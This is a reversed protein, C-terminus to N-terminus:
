KSKPKNMERLQKSLWRRLARIDDETMVVRSSSLTNYSDIFINRNATAASFDVSGKDYQFKM